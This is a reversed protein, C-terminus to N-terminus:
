KLYDYLDAAKTVRLTRGRHSSAVIGPCSGISSVIDLIQLPFETFSRWRDENFRQLMPLVGEKEFRSDDRLVFSLRLSRPPCCGVLKNKTLSSVNKQGQLSEVPIAPLDQCCKRQLNLVMKNHNQDHMTM